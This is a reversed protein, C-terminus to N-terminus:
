RGGLRKRTGCFAISGALTAFQADRAKGCNNTKVARGCVFVQVVQFGTTFPNAGAIPTATYAAIAVPPIVNSLVTFLLVFMHTSLVTVGLEAVPNWAARTAMIPKMMGKTQIMARNGSAM